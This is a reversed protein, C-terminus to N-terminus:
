TRRQTLFRAQGEEQPKLTATFPVHVRICSSESRTTTQEHKHKSTTQKNTNAAYICPPNDRGRRSNEVNKKSKKFFLTSEESESKCWKLWTSSSPGTDRTILQSNYVMFAWRREPFYEAKLKSRKHKHKHRHVQTSISRCIPYEYNCHLAEDNSYRVCGCGYSSIIVDAM